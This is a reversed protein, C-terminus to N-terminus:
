QRHWRRNRAAITAAVRRAVRSPKQPAPLGHFADGVTAYRRLGGTRPSGPLFHTGRPFYFVGPPQWGVIFARERLQPVGFAAANLVERTMDYGGHGMVGGRGLERELMRLVNRMPRNFIAPVNEFVFVRPRLGRVLRCFHLVLQGSSAGLGKRRGTVSFSQCPPGGFVVDLEGARLGCERLVRRPTVLKEDSIDAQWVNSFGNLLLTKVCNADLEIAVRIDFGARHFGLDLGGAGSFLSVATPHRGSQPRM